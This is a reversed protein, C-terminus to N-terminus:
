IELNSLGQQSQTRGQNSDMSDSYIQDVPFSKESVVSIFNYYESNRRQESIIKASLHRLRQEYEKRTGTYPINLLFLSTNKGTVKFDDLTLLDTLDKHSYEKPKAALNFKSRIRNEVETIRNMHSRFEDSNIEPSPIEKLLQLKEIDSQPSDEEKEKEM